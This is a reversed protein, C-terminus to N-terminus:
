CYVTPSYDHFGDPGGCDYGHPECALWAEGGRREM